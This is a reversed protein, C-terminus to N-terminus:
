NIELVTTSVLRSLQVWCDATIGIYMDYEKIKGQKKCDLAVTKNWAYNVASRLAKVRNKKAYPFMRTATSRSNPNLTKLYDLQERTLEDIFIGM